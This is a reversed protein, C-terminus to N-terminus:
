KFIKVHPAWRDTEKDAMTAQRNTPRPATHTKDALVDAYVRGSRRQRFGRGDHGSWAAEGDAATQAAAATLRRTRWGLAPATYEVVGRADGGRPGAAMGVGCRGSGGGETREAGDLELRWDGSGPGHSWRESFSGAGLWRWSRRAGNGEGGAASSDDLSRWRHRRRRLGTGPRSTGTMWTSGQRRSHGGGDLQV